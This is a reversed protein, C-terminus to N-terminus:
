AFRRSVQPWMASGNTRPGFAPLRHDSAPGTAGTVHSTLPDHRFVDDAQVSSVNGCRGFRTLHNDLLQLPKQIRRPRALDDADGAAENVTVLRDSIGIGIPPMSHRFSRSRRMARSRSHIESCQGSQMSPRCFYAMLVFEIYSYRPIISPGMFITFTQRLADGLRGAQDGAFPLGFPPYAHKIEGFHFTFTVKEAENWYPKIACPPYRQHEQRVPLPYAEANPGPSAAYPM